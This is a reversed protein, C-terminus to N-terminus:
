GVLAAAQFPLRALRRSGGLGYHAWNPLRGMYDIREALVDAAVLDEGDQAVRAKVAAITGAGIAGDIKTGIAAQLWRSATGVGNNFAADLVLLALRPPLADGQVLQWYAYRCLERAQNLSLDKVLAPYCSRLTVPLHKLADAYSATDIGWRTGGLTGEGVAGGTWNGSDETSMDLGGHAALFEGAGVAAGSWCRADLPNAAVEHVMLAAFCQEFIPPMM